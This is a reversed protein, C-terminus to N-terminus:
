KKKKKKITKKKKKNNNNQEPKIQKNMFRKLKKNMVAM